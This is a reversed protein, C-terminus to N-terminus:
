VSSLLVRIDNEIVAARCLEELEEILKDRPDQGSTPDTHVLTDLENTLRTDHNKTHQLEEELALRISREKRLRERLLDVLQLAEKISKPAVYYFTHEDLHLMHNKTATDTGKATHQHSTFSSSAPYEDAQPVTLSASPNVHSKNHSHLASVGDREHLRSTTWNERDKATGFLDNTIRKRVFHDRFSPRLVFHPKIDISSDDSVISDAAANYTVEHQAVCAIVKGGFESKRIYDQQHHVESSGAM